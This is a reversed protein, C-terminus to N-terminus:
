IGALVPKLELHAFFPASKQTTAVPDPFSRSDVVSGEDHQQIMQQRDVPARPRPMPELHPTNRTDRVQKAVDDEGLLIEYSRAKRRRLRHRNRARSSDNSGPDCGHQVLQRLLQSPSNHDLPEM